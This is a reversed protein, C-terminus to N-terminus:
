KGPSPFSFRLVLPLHDSTGGNHRFGHYTRRPKRGKNTRDEETLFPFDAVSSEVCLPALTPSALAHDLSGWVGQYKYTGGAGNAGRAEASIDRLGATELYGLCHEGAYENFDGVALVMAGPSVAWISDAAASLTEATRRRFPRTAKEGGTRSPAHVVFVHLTDGTAIRGAVYLIDRTPKMGKAPEVRIGRHIVPAFSFPSYLLAVDIGRSDPSDTTIYGYGAGRLLSRKALDRVVSDNEVECLAALDPLQWGGKTEGCAILAKGINDLKRWYRNRTWRRPGGEVFELDDKGEDHRTDFLNECNLQVVTFLGALLTCLTM